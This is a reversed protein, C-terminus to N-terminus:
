LITVLQKYKYDEYTSINGNTCNPINYLPIDFLFGFTIHEINNPLNDVFWYDNCNIYLKKIHSCFIISQKFYSGFEIHQIHQTLITLQNFGFGFILHKIHPTLIIPQNFYDGFIVYTLCPTLVIPQNFFKGFTLYKIYPTLVISQDFAWVFELRIINPTLVFPKNFRFDEFIMEDMDKIIEYYQDLDENFYGSFTIKQM